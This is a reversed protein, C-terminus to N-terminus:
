FYFVDAGIVVWPRLPIDHHMLKEKPQTQQFELCTACLKIHAEINANINHWFISECALLKRKEIGMHNIHLQILVQQKLSDPIVIFRGKLLVCDIVALEDRYPWYPRIDTQLEDKTHPWGAIIFTKLHQLHVDQLSAWQIEEISICDLMDVLSQIADVQIDMDKIPKDKGEMHNHWSLWDALFIEPGPKYLIQVRYQHIKLMIHQICQLLIAVDKKFMAILPKHDTIILVEWGFCYYHFKELGHLIGLAEWKINSYRQEAGSLSKSAFAIPHLAINQSAVGKQCITNDCLQLLTAGLGIGSADTELCLLKSNDYFKMYM